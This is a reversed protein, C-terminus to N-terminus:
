QRNKLQQVRLRANVDTSYYENTPYYFLGFFMLKEIRYKIYGNPSTESVVRYKPQNNKM